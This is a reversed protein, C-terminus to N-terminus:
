DHLNFLVSSMFHYVSANFWWMPLAIYDIYLFSSNEWIFMHKGTLQFMLFGNCWELIFGLVGILLISAVASMEKPRFWFRYIFYFVVVSM